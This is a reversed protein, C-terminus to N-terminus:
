GGAAPAPRGGGGVYLNGAADVALDNPQDTGKGSLTAFMTINGASDLRMVFIGSDRSGAVYTNGSADAMVRAVRYDNADGIYTTFAAAPLAALFCLAAAMRCLSYTGMGRAYCAPGAFRSLWGM